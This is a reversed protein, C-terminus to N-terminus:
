FVIRVPTKQYFVMEGEMELTVGPIVRDYLLGNIFIDFNDYGIKDLQGMVPISFRLYKHIMEQFFSKPCSERGIKERLRKFLCVNIEELEGKIKEARQRLIDLGDKQSLGEIRDLIHFDIFDMIDVRSDFNTEEYLTLDEEIAQIFSQIESIVM